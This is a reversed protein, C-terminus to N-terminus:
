IKVLEQEDECGIQRCQIIYTTSIANNSLLSFFTNGIDFQRPKRIPIKFANRIKWQRSSIFGM